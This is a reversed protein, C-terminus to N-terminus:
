KRKELSKQRAGETSDWNEMCIVSHTVAWIRNSGSFFAYVGFRKFNNFFFFFVFEKHWGCHRKCLFNFNWKQFDTTCLVTQLKTATYKTTLSLVLKHRKCPTERGLLDITPSFVPIRESSRGVPDHFVTYSVCIPGKKSQSPEGWHRDSLISCQKNPPSEDEQRATYKTHITQCM